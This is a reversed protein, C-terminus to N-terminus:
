RRFEDCCLPKYLDGHERRTCGCEACLGGVWSAPVANVYVRYPDGGFNHADVTVVGQADTAVTRGKKLDRRLMDLTTTRSNGVPVVTRGTPTDAWIEFAEGTLATELEEDALATLPGLTTMPGGWGWVGPRVVLSGEPGDEYRWASNTAVSGAYVARHYTERAQRDLPLPHRSVTVATENGRVLFGTTRGRWPEDPHLSTPRLGAKLLAATVMKRAQDAATPQHTRM